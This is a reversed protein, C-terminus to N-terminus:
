KRKASILRLCEERKQKYIENPAYEMVKDFDAASKEYEGLKMEAIAIDGFLWFKDTTERIKEFAKIAKKFDGKDLEAKIGSIYKDTKIQKKEKFKKAIASKILQAIIFIHAGDFGERLADIFSKYKVYVKFKMTFFNYVDTFSIAKNEKAAIEKFETNDFPILWSLMIKDPRCEALLNLTERYTEKTEFPFCYMAFNGFWIGNERLKACFKIIQENTYHPRKLKRRTALSGTEIGFNVETINAEKMLKFIDDNDHLLADNFNFKVSFAKKQKLSGNYEILKRCFTKFYEIETLANEAEFFVMKIDGYNKCVFDLERIVQEIDRHREYKGKSIKGLAHNSCYVCQNKCGRQLIIKQLGNQGTYKHWGDRDPYPLSDINEILRCADPRIILGDTNRILLNDTKVFLDKEVQKAYEVAAIDGEGICVADTNKNEMVYDPMLTAYTGGIIIKINKYKSKVADIFKEAFLFDSKTTISLAAIKVSEDWKNLLESISTFPMFIIETDHGATKLSSSIYSIGLPIEETSIKDKRWYNARIYICYVKM